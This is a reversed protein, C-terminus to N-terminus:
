MERTLYDGYLRPYDRGISKADSKDATHRRHIDALARLEMVYTALWSGPFRWGMEKCAASPLCHADEAVRAM